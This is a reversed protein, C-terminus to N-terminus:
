RVDETSIDYGLAVDMEDNVFQGLSSSDPEVAAHPIRALQAMADARRYPSFTGEPREGIM